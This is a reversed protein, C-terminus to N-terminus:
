CCLVDIVSCFGIFVIFVVIWEVENFIMDFFFIIIVDLIKSYNDYFFKRYFVFM